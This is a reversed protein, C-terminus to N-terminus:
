LLYRDGPSHGLDKTGRRTVQPDSVFVVGLVPSLVWASICDRKKNRKESHEIGRMRVIEGGAISPGDIMPNRGKGKKASSERCSAEFRMEFM